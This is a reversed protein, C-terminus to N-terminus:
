VVILLTLAGIICLWKIIVFSAGLAKAATPYKKSIAEKAEKIRQLDKKSALM